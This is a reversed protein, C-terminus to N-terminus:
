GRAAVVTGDEAALIGLGVETLAEETGVPAEVVVVRGLPAVVRASERIWSLGLAGDVAVGRLTRGFFPIGPRSVM